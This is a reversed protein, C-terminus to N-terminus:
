EIDLSYLTIEHYQGGDFFVHFIGEPAQFNYTGNASVSGEFLVKHNADLVTITRGAASSGDTYGAECQIERAERSCAFIPAHATAVPAFLAAVLPFIPMGTIWLKM